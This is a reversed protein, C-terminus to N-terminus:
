CLWFIGTANAVEKCGNEFIRTTGNSQHTINDLSLDTGTDPSTTGIGVNGTEDIIMKASTDDWDPQQTADDAQYTFYLSSGSGDGDQQFSRIAWTNWRNITGGGASWGSQLFLPMSHSNTHGSRTLGGTIGDQGDDTTGGQEVMLQTLPSTTGIGVNGKNKIRLREALPSTGDPNTYFVLDAPYDNTGSSWAKTVDASIKAGVFGTGADGGADDDGAFIISGLVNADGIGTDLNRLVLESGIPANNVAVDLLRTPSTTGIGVSYDTSNLFVDNGSQNWMNAAGGGGGGADDTGCKLTGSEDTDITDCNSINITLGQKINANGITHLTSTPAATGIGVNQANDIRMAEIISGAAATYFVIEGDDKNTTDTGTQFDLLAVRTGAWDAEVGMLAQNSGTRNSDGVLLNSNAGASNDLRITPAASNDEIELQNAPSTTGIGVNGTTNKIRMKEDGGTGFLFDGDVNMFMLKNTNDYYWYSKLVGNNMIDFETFQNGTNDINFVSTTTGKVHLTATPTITGIGVNKSFNAPYLSTGSTNWHTAGGGGTADDGDCLGASGTIQECSLNMTIVGDIVSINASSLTLNRISANIDTGNIFDMDNTLNSFHTVNTDTNTDTDDLYFSPVEGALTDANSANAPKYEESLNTLKRQFSTNVFSSNVLDLDNISINLLSFNVLDLEAPNFSGTGGSADNGCVLTGDATTNITDCDTLSTIRLSSANIRGSIISGNVFIDGRVELDDQVGLDAGTADTDCDIFSYGQSSCNVISNNFEQGLDGGIIKSRPNYIALDTGAKPIAFRVLNDTTAFIFEILSDSEANRVIFSGNLNMGAVTLNSHLLQTDGIEIAGFPEGFHAEIDDNLINGTNYVSVNLMGTMTDGTVNVYNDSVHTKNAADLDILTLILEADYTVNTDTHKLYQPHDDDELGTLAGHDSAGAGGGGCCSTGNAVLFDTAQITTTLNCGTGGTLQCFVQKAYGLTLPNFSSEGMVQTSILLVMTIFLLITKGM